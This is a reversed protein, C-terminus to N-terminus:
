PDNATLVEFCKNLEDSDENEDEGYHHSVIQSIRKLATELATIRKVQKWVLVEASRGLEASSVIYRDSSELRAELLKIYDLLAPMDKPVAEILDWAEESDIPKAVHSSITGLMWHQASIPRVRQWFRGASHIAKDVREQIAAIEEATLLIKKDDM